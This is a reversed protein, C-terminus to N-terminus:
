QISHFKPQLISTCLMSGISLNRESFMGGVDSGRWVCLNGFLCLCVVDLRVVNGSCAAANLQDWVGSWDVLM